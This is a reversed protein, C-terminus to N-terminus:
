NIVITHIREFVGNKELEIIGAKENLENIVGYYDPLGCWPEICLFEAGPLKWLLLNDFEPYDVTITKECDKSKLTVSKSKIDRFVLTDHEKFYNDHLKLINKDTEAKKVEGTLFPGNLLANELTEEYEFTVFYKDIDGKCIYGEHSGISFYMEGDTKNNVSYTVYIKNNEIKYAVRLEYDFPYIKKSEEDSKLLFVVRDEKQEEILFERNRGFGHGEMKYTCGKFTYKNDTLCGCVPWLLPAQGNWSSIDGQWLREEGDKDIISKLEAGLAAIEVTLYNNKLIARKNVTTGGFNENYVFEQVTVFATVGLMNTPTVANAFFQNNKVDVAIKAIATLNLM